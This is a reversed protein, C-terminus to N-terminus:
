HKRDQTAELEKFWKVSDDLSMTKVEGQEQTDRIRITVTEKEIEGAGVVIIFNYQAVQANRIKKGLTADTSDLTAQFGEGYYFDKVRRAYALHPESVPVVVIQRPSIWFPWKGKWHEALIAICRELSGLIARHIMVPRKKWGEAFKKQAEEGSFCESKKNGHKDVEPDESTPEFIEGAENVLTGEPLTPAEDLVAPDYTLDFRRPLNFDLQLTGLQHKRKMADEIRIDIKPGYFAGDGENVVWTQKVGLPKGEKDAAAMVRKIRRLSDETGDFKFEKGETFPDPLATPINCFKNLAVALYEEARDWMAHTGLMNAPRTSLALHFKFDLVEYVTELFELGHEIEVTTQEPLCFIHADDQCFRRVRTLGSLAGALENRHLVGFDAFRIPLEKYSHRAASYMLCHGPCNMPKLAYQAAEASSAEIRFMDESYKQWHGSTEWLKKNYMNPTIVEEFGRKRYQKRIWDTLKNYVHAGAPYWFCSGPSLDNFMWLGQRPGIKRHDNEAAAAMVEKWEKLLKEQPFSIGYVRQLVPNTDKNRWYSSSNKHVMMSKVRGTHPLHPGRCPDILPGCRYVTCTGNEPVKDKLTAFKFPNYKFMELADEKRVVLRQFPYKKTTVDKVLTDLAGYDSESIPEKTEAEYFFGGEELPPGTSLKAGYLWEMSCGLIHSSSHWFIKQSEASDWDLLEFAAVDDELPRALDWLQDNVKACFMKDPLQSSIAKAIDFPTTKWAVGDMEKGNLLTVKIPKEKAEYDKCQKEWLSEFFKIRSEWFEPLQLSKPDVHGAKAKPKAAANKAPKEKKAQQKAPADGAPKDKAPPAKATGEAPPAAPKPAEASM